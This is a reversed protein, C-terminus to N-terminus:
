IRKFILLWVLILLFFLLSLGEAVVVFFVTRRGSPSMKLWYRDLFWKWTRSFLSTRRSILLYNAASKLWGGKNVLTILLGNKLSIKSTYLSRPLRPAPLFLGLITNEPFFGALLSPLASKPRV